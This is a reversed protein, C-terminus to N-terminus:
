FRMGRLHFLKWEQDKKMFFIFKYAITQGSVRHDLMVNLSQLAIEDEIHLSGWEIRILKLSDYREHFLFAFYRRPLHGSIAFPEELEVTLKEQCIAALSAQNRQWLVEEIPQMLLYHETVTLLLFLISLM